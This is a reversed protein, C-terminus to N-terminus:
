SRRDWPDLTGVVKVSKENVIADIVGESIEQNTLWRSHKKELIFGLQIQRYQCGPYKKVATEKIQAADSSSGLVHYLKWASGQQAVEQSIIDLAHNSNSHIWAVVLDIPGNQQICNRINERLATSDKYDVLLPTIFADPNAKSLLREMKRQDRAIISIKASTDALWLSAESLMGTGGIILAHSLISQIRNNIIQLWPHEGNFQQSLTHYLWKMEDKKLIPLMRELDNNDKQRVVSSGGKYLLQIEPKIYPIGDETIAEIESLPRKIKNDRKYIWENNETDMLMIEFLWTIEHKMKVWISGSQINISKSDILKSLSGNNALFLEYSEGLHKKLLPLDIKRILIDMDEHERTQKGYHLDLAWGGAIWWPISINKMLYRIEQISLPQWHYNQM